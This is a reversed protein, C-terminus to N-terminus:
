LGSNELLAFETQRRGIDVRAVQVSVSDGLRFRRHGREGVLAYEAEEFRYYDDMMTAVPIM